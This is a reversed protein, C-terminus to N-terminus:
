INDHHSHEIDYSASIQDVSAKKNLANAHAYTELLTTCNAHGLLEKMTVIDIGVSIGESAFTHRLCHPTIGNLDINYVEEIEKKLKSFRTGIYAANFPKNLRNLFIYEDPECKDGRALKKKKLETSMFDNLPITRIGSKTKTSGEIKASTKSGNITISRMDESLDKWKLASLEGDRMGTYLMMSIMVYFQYDRERMYQLIIKIEDHTLPRRKAEAEYIPKVLLMPNYNIVGEDKAFNFMARLHVYINKQTAVKLKKDKASQIVMLIDTFTINCMLQKGLIPEIHTHFAFKIQDISQPKICLQKAQIYHEFWVSMSVDGSISNMHTANRTYTLKILKEKVEKKSKGYVSKRSGLSNVYRGEWIGNDRQRISGDGKDRRKM